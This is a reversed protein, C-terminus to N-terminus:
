TTYSSVLLSLCPAHRNLGATREVEKANRSSRSAHGSAGQSALKFLGSERCSHLVFLGDIAEGRHAEARGRSYLQLSRLPCCTGSRTNYVDRCKSLYRIM